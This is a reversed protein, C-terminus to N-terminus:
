LVILFLIRTNRSHNRTHQALAVHSRFVKPCATCVWELRCLSIRLNGVAKRLMATTAEHGM